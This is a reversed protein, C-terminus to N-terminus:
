KSVGQQKIKSLVRNLRDIRSQVEGIKINRFNSDREAYRTDVYHRVEGRMYIHENLALMVAEAQGDTLKLEIM